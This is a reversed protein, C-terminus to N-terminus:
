HAQGSHPEVHVVVDKVESVSQKIREEVIHALDHAEKISLAPDVAVHLDVLLARGLRRVRISRCDMVGPVRLAASRIGNLVGGSPMRHLISESAEAINDIVGKVMFGAVLLAAVIDLVPNFLIATSVGIFVIVSEIVDAILHRAEARLAISRTITSARRLTLASIAIMVTSVGSCLVGIDGVEHLEKLGAIASVVIATVVCIMVMSTIIASLVEYGYHGYPHERDPPKLSRM